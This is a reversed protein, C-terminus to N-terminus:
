AKIPKLKIIRKPFSDKHIDNVLIKKIKIEKQYFLDLDDRSKTYKSLPGWRTLVHLIWPQSMGLCKQDPINHNTLLSKNKYVHWKLLKVAIICFFNDFIIRILWEM